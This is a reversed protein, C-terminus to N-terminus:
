QVAKSGSHSPAKAFLFLYLVRDSVEPATLVGRFLMQEMRSLFSVAWASSQSVSPEITAQAFFFFSLTTTQVAGFSCSQLHSSFGGKRYIGCDGVQLLVRIQACPLVARTRVLATTKAFRQWVRFDIHARGDNLGVQGRGRDCGILKSM